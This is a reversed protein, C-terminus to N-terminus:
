EGTGAAIQNLEALIRQTEHIIAFTDSEVKLWRLEDRFEDPDRKRAVSYADYIEQRKEWLEEYRNKLATTPDDM